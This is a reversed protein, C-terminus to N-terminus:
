DIRHTYTLTFTLRTAVTQLRFSKIEDRYSIRETLICITSFCFRINWCSVFPRKLNLNHPDNFINTANLGTAVARNNTNTGQNRQNFYLNVEHLRFSVKWTAITSKSDCDGHITLAINKGLNLITQCLLQIFCFFLYNFLARFLGRYYVCLECLIWGGAIDQQSCPFAASWRYQQIWDSRCHLTHENALVCHLVCLSSHAHRGQEMLRLQKEIRNKIHQM